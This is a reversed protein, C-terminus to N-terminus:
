CQVYTLSKAPNTETRVLKDQQLQFAEYKSWTQGEGTFHFDGSMSSPGVQVNAGPVARSEYFRLERDNVILLGKADGLTTTCDRPVLGWRGQLAAPIKGSAAFPSAAPKPENPLAAPQPEPENAIANATALVQKLDATNVANEAVPDPHSCAALALAVSVTFACRLM